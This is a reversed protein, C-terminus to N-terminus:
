FYIFLYIFLVSLSLSISVRSGPEKKRSILREVNYSEELVVPKDTIPQRKLELSEGENLLRYDIKQRPRLSFAM